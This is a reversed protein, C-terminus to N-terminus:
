KLLPDRPLVLIREGIQTGKVESTGGAISMGRHFLVISGSVAGPADMFVADDGTLEVLIGVAKTVLESLVLKTIRGGGGARQGRRRPERQALQHPGHGPARRLLTPRMLATREWFEHETM